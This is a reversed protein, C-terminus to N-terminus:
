MMLLQWHSHSRIGAVGWPKTDLPFMVMLMLLQTWSFCLTTWHLASDRKWQWSCAASADWKWARIGKGVLQLTAWLPLLCGLINHVHVGSCEHAEAVAATAEKAASSVLLASFYHLWLNSLTRALCFEKYCHRLTMADRTLSASSTLTLSSMGQPHVLSSIFIVALQM